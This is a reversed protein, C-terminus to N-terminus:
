SLCHISKIFRAISYGPCRLHKDVRRRGYHLISGVNLERELIDKIEDHNKLLNGGVSRRSLGMSLRLMQLSRLSIM